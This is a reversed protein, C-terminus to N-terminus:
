QARGFIRLSSTQKRVGDGEGPMEIKIVDAGLDGMVMSSFPGSPATTLDLVGIGGPIGRKM